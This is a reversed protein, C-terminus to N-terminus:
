LRGFARLPNLYNLCTLLSRSDKERVLVLQAKPVMAKLAELQEPVMSDIEKQTVILSTVNPVLNPLATFTETPVRDLNNNCLILTHLNSHRALDGLFKKWSDSSFFAQSLDNNSLNLATLDRFNLTFALPQEIETQNQYFNYLDNGSMDLYTINPFARTLNSTFSEWNQQSNFRQWLANSSVNLRHINHDKSFQSINMLKKEAINSSSGLENFSVNIMKYRKLNPDPKSFYKQWQEENWRALSLEETNSQFFMM